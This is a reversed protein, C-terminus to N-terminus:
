LQFLNKVVLPSAFCFFVGGFFNFSFTAKITLKSPALLVTGGRLGGCRWSLSLTAECCGHCGAVWWLCCFVKIDATAASVSGGRSLVPLWVQLWVDAKLGWGAEVTSKREQHMELRNRTNRCQAFHLHVQPWIFVCFALIYERRLVCPQTNTQKCSDWTRAFAPIDTRVGYILAASSLLLFM